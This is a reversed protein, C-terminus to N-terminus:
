KQLNWRSEGKISGFAQEVFKTPSVRGGRAIPLKVPNPAILVGM